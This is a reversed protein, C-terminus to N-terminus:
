TAEEVQINEMDLETVELEESVFDGGNERFEELADLFSDAKVAFIQEGHVSSVRVRIHFLM